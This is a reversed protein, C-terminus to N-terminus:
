AEDEENLDGIENMFDDWDDEPRHTKSKTAGGLKPRDDDPVSQTEGVIEETDRYIGQAEEERIKEIIAKNDIGEQSDLDANEFKSIDAVNALRSRKETKPTGDPHLGRKEFYEDLWDNPAFFGQAHDGESFIKVYIRGKPSPRVRTGEGNGLIMNSATSDVTGCCVRGGLNAKTEGPLMKADPRQTALVLHVGAARGLRAISGLIMTAEGKLADEEKGEDTSVGSASLLEGLEDAMVLLAQGRQPLDLFDNEGLAEMEEYRKMMTQQAFRLVTLADELTTAVGQVVESFKIYRSLEVKKLDIGLFRWHDPRLICGIIINQQAVSNHTLVRYGYKDGEGIAFQRDASDVSICRSLEPEVKTIKRLKTTKKRTLLPIRM